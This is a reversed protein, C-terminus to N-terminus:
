KSRPTQCNWCVDFDAEVSEGCSPCIWVAEPADDPHPARHKREYGALAARARDEDRRHVWVRPATEEGLPIMNTLTDGVVSAEIGADGLMDRLFHAEALDAASYVEVIDDEAPNM